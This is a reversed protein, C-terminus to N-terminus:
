TTMKGGIDKASTSENSGSGSPEREVTTGEELITDSAFYTAQPFPWPDISFINMADILKLDDEDLANM